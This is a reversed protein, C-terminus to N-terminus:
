TDVEANSTLAEVPSTCGIRNGVGLLQKDLKGLYLEGASGNAITWSQSYGLASLTGQSAGIPVGMSQGDGLARQVMRCSVVKKSGATAEPAAADIIVAADELLSKCLTTEDVSLDRLIRSQVDEVTAYTTAM